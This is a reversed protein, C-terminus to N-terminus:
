VLRKPETSNEDIPEKKEEAPPEEVPVNSETGPPVPIDRSPQEVDSNQSGNGDRSEPNIDSHTGFDDEKEFSDVDPNPINQVDQMRVEM